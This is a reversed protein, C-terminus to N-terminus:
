SGNSTTEYVRRLLVSVQDALWPRTKVDRQVIACLATVLVHTMDINPRVLWDIVVQSRGGPRSLYACAIGHNEGLREHTSAELLPAPLPSLYVLMQQLFRAQAEDEAHTGCTLCGPRALFGCQQRTPHRRRPFKEVVCWCRDARAPPVVAVSM